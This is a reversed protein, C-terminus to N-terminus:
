TCFGDLVRHTWVLPLLHCRDTALSGPSPQTDPVPSHYPPPFTDDPLFCPCLGPGSTAGYLLCARQPRSSRTCGLSSQAFSCSAFIDKRAKPNSAQLKHHPWRSPRQRRHQWPRGASPAAPASIWGARQDACRASLPPVDAELLERLPLKKLKGKGVCSDRSRLVPAPAEELNGCLRKTDRDRSQGNAVLPM